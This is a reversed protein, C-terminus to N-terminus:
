RRLRRAPEEIGEGAAKLKQGAGAVTACGM